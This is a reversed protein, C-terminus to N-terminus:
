NWKGDLRKLFSFMLLSNEGDGQQVEQDDEFVDVIHFGCKKLYFHINRVEFYPTCLRWAAADPYRGEIAEWLLTGIGENHMGKKAYLFACEHERREEDLFLITGGVREGGVVAELACADPRALAGDIDRRPLVPSDGNELGGEAALQFADQMERAFEELNEGGLPRLELQM